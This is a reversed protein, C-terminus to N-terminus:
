WITQGGDVMLSAGTVFHAESSALFVVAGSIAEPKGIYGLPIRSVRTTRFETDALTARNLDTEITGPAVANVRIGAQGLELAMSRTLMYIAGKSACYHANGPWAQVQRTSSINIIAGQGRPLMAKAARQGCLFYGKVNTDMVRDWEAETIDIFPTNQMVGANNVLIDIHGFRSLFAEFMAEVQPKDRVDAQYSEADVDLNKIDAVVSRAEQDPGIFNVGVAAGERALAVAIARGIGRSAGTVLATKGQLKM